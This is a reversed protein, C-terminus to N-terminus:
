LVSWRVAFFEKRFHDVRSTWWVVSHGRRVLEQAVMGTRWLRSNGSLVPLPEGVTMLWVHMPSNLRASARLVSGRDASRLSPYRQFQQALPTSVLVEPSALCAKIDVSKLGRSRFSERLRQAASRNQFHDQPNWLRWRREPFRYFHFMSVSADAYRYHDTYDIVHSFIAGPAAIASHVGASNARHGVACHAGAYQDLVRLQCQTPYGPQGADAPACYRIRYKRALIRTATRSKRGGARCWRVFNAFRTISRSSM